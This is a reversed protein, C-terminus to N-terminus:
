GRSLSFRDLRFRHAAAATTTFAAERQAVGAEDLVFPGVSAPVTGAAQAVLGGDSVRRLQVALQRTAATFDIVARYARGTELPAALPLVLSWPTGDGAVVVRATSADVIEVALSQSATTAASHFLGALMPNAADSGFSSIALDMELRIDDGRTLPEVPKVYRRRQAALLGEMEGFEGRTWNARVDVGGAAANWAYAVADTTQVLQPPGDDHAPRRGIDMFSFDFYWGRKLPDTTFEETFAAVAETGTNFTQNAVSALFPNLQSFTAAYHTNSSWTWVYKDVYALTNAVNSWPMGPWTSRGWHVSENLYGSPWGPWLNWPDSDFWAAMGVDVFDDYKAPDNSYTRWVNRISNRAGIYPDRDADYITFSSSGPPIARAQGWWFSSEWAHIIRAPDRIGALVGDMFPVLNHYNPWATYEDGWSFFFQLEIDPFESQV